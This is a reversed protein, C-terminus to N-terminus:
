RVHSDEKATLDVTSTLGAIRLFNEFLRRGARMHVEALNSFQKLLDAADLNRLDADQACWVALMEPVLEFHMQLGYATRGVRIAQVDGHRSVALTEASPTERVVEGHLQFIHFPSVVGEFLPDALGADTLTVEYPLGAEDAFGIEKQTSAVAAGAVKGLVQHGLCIGLFPINGAIAEKAHALQTQMEPTEDNASAPGGLVVLAAYDRLSPIDEGRELDVVDAEIRHHILLDRLLGPGERSINKIILVRSTM